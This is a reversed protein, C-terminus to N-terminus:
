PPRLRPHPWILTGCAAPTVACLRKANTSSGQRAGELGCSGKGEGFSNLM